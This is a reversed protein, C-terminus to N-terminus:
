IKLKKIIKIEEYLKKIRNKRVKIAEKIEEIITQYNEISEGSQLMMKIGTLYYEHYDKSKTSNMKKEYSNITNLRKIQEELYEIYNSIGSIEYLIDDIVVKCLAKLPKKNIKGLQKNQKLFDLAVLNNNPESDKILDKLTESINVHTKYQRKTVLADYEDAVRIIQGSLPIEDKTLGRPYGSGNLAEHHYWPGDSYFMLNKDKMCYEYGLTTHTKIIEFEEQTLRGPKNIIAKDIFLKGVDHIYAAIMCHLTFKSNFKMYTCIRATLNSVNKSHTYTHFDLNEVISLSNQLEPDLDKISINYPSYFEFKEDKLM